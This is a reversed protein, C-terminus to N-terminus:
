IVMQYNYTSVRNNPFQSVVAVWNIFSGLNAFMIFITFYFNNAILDVYFCCRNRSYLITVLKESDHTSCFSYKRSKQMVQEVLVEYHVLSPFWKSGTAGVQLSSLCMEM